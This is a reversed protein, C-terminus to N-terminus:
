ASRRLYPIPIDANGSIGSPAVATTPLATQTALVHGRITTNPTVGSSAGMMFSNNSLCTLAGATPAASGTVLSVLWYMGAAPIKWPSSLTAAQRGTALSTLSFSATALPGGAFNPQGTGDDAYIGFQLASDSGGTFATTVNIQIQDVTFAQLLTPFWSLRQYVPTGAAGATMSQPAVTWGVPPTFAFVPSTSPTVPSAGGVPPLIPTPLGLERFIAFLMIRHGLTLLHIKDPNRLGFPDDGYKTSAPIGVQTFYKTLDLYIANGKARAAAAAKSAAGYQAWTYTPNTVDAREHAHVLIFLHPKTLNADYYDMAANLNAVTTSPPTSNSFDNSEVWLWIVSPKQAAGKALIAPDLAQASTYGSLSGSRTHVGATTPAAGDLNGVTGDESNLGSPFLTQLAATILPFIMSSTPTATAGSPTSGGHVVQTFASGRMQLLSQLMPSDAGSQGITEIGAKANMDAANITGGSQAPLGM